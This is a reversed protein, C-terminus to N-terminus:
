KKGRLTELEQDAKAWAKQAQHFARWGVEVWTLLNRIKWEARIWQITSFMGVICIILMLWDSM